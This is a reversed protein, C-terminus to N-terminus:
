APVEDSNSSGAGTSDTITQDRVPVPPSFLSSYFPGFATRLIEADREEKSMRNLRNLHDTYDSM